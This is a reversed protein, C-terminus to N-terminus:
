LDERIKRRIGDMMNRMIHEQQHLIFIIVM